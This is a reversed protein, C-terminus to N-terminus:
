AWREGLNEQGGHARDLKSCSVVNPYVEFAERLPVHLLYVHTFRPQIARLEQGAANAVAAFDPCSPSRFPTNYLVAQDYYVILRVDSTSPAYRSKDELRRALAGIAVRPDYAGGGEDVVIWSVRPLRERREGAVDLPAFYIAELYRQLTPYANLERCLYGEASQWCPSERWEADVQAVLTRLERRFDGADERKFPAATAKPELTCYRINAPPSIKQMGVVAKIANRLREVEKGARTQDPELWEGLEWGIRRGDTHLTIVDPFDDEAPYSEVVDAKLQPWSELFAQFIDKERETQAQNRAM